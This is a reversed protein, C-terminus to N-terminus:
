SVEQNPHWRKAAAKRAKDSRVRMEDSTPQYEAWGNIDWGGDSPLWLGVEALQDAERKTMHFM